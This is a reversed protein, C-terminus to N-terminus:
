PEGFKLILKRYSNGVASLSDSSAVEVKRDHIRKLKATLFETTLDAGHEELLRQLVEEIFRKRYDDVLPSRVDFGRALVVVVDDWAEPLGLDKLKGLASEAKSRLDDLSSRGPYIVSERFIKLDENSM